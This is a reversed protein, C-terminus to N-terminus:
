KFFFFALLIPIISCALGTLIWIQKQAKVWTALLALGAVAIGGSSIIWWFDTSFGAGALTIGSCAIFFQFIFRLWEDSLKETPWKVGSGVAIIAVVFMALLGISTLLQPISMTEEKKKKSHAFGFLYLVCIQRISASHYWWWLM